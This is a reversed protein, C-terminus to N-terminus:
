LGSHASRQVRGSPPPIYEPFPKNQVFARLFALSAAPKYEPVMHGSGRITLYHFDGPYSVVYGGMRQRGDLTWPRWPRSAGVGLSDFYEFYKYDDIGDARADAPLM